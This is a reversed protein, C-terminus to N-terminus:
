SAEVKQLSFKKKSLKLATSIQPALILISLAFRTMALSTMVAPLSGVGLMNRFYYPRWRGESYEPQGGLM